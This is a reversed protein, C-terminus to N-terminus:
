SHAASVTAWNFQISILYLFIFFPINIERGFLNIASTSTSPSIFIHWTFFVPLHLSSSIFPTETISSFLPIEVLFVSYSKTATYLPLSSIFMSLWAGFLTTPSHSSDPLCKSPIVAM